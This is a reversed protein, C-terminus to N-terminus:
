VEYRCSSAGTETAIRRLRVEREMGRYPLPTGRDAVCWVSRAPALSSSRSVAHRRRTRHIVMMLLAFGGGDRTSGHLWFARRALRPVVRSYTVCWWRQLRMWTGASKALASAFMCTVAGCRGRGALFLYVKTEAPGSRVSWVIEGHHFFIAVRRFSSRVVGKATVSSEIRCNYAALWQVVTAVPETVNPLSSESTVEHRVSSRSVVSEAEM